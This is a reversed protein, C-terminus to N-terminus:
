GALLQYHKPRLALPSDTLPLQVRQVHRARRACSTEVKGSYRILAVKSLRKQISVDGRLIM